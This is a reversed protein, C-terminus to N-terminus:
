GNQNDAHDGVDGGGFDDMVWTGGDAALGIYGDTAAMGSSLTWTAAQEGNRWATLVNGVIRAGFQDGAELTILKEPGAVRWVGGGSYLPQVTGRVQNYRLALVSQTVDDPSQGLLLLALGQGAAPIQVLTVYAAQDPGFRQRWFIAGGTTTLLREGDSYYGDTAGLWDPGIEYHAPQTSVPTPEPTLTETPVPTETPEPTETPTPSPTETPTPTPLADCVLMFRGTDLTMWCSYPQGQAQVPTVLSLCLGATLILAYIRRLTQDAM